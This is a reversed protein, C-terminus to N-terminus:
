PANFKNLVDGYLFKAIKDEKANPLEKVEV